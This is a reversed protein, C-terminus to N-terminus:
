IIKAKKDGDKFKLNIIDNKKINKVSNIIKENDFTVICYGRTLTKLPSLTDLKSILSVAENMSKSIKKSINLYLKQNFIDIKIYRENIKQLPESFSKSKICKEYRLRMLEVSRFLM